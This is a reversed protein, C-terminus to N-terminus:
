ETGDSNEELDRLPNAPAAAGRLFRLTRRGREVTTGPLDLRIGSRQGMVAEDIAQLHHASWGPACMRDAVIRYVRRRLPPLLRRVGELDLQPYGDDDRSLISPLASVAWEDLADADERAQAATRALSLAVGPGLRRELEPLVEERVEVRLFRRDLNQPDHWVALGQAACSAETQSRRIGLLPRLITVGERVAVPAIGALSRLGSGRALRMLVTEAQDDLTHALLIAAGGVERARAFLAGYRAKRAEAEPGDGGGRVSVRRVAVDAVGLSRVTTSATSAVEASGEQLGHDVVLVHVPIGLRGSEFVTAACLALSDPGGSVGVLVGASGIRDAHDELLTRVATRVAATAPDLRPRRRSTPGAAM